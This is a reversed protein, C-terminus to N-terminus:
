LTKDGESENEVNKSNNEESDPEIEELLQKPDFNPDLKIGNLNIFAESMSRNKVWASTRGLIPLKKSKTLKQRFSVKKLHSAIGGLRMTIRPHFHPFRIESHLALSTRFPLIQEPNYIIYRVPLVTGRWINLM